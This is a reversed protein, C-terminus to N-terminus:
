KQEEGALSNDNRLDHLDDLYDRDVELFCGIPSDNSYNDLIKQILM